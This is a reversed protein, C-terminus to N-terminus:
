LLHNMTNYYMDTLKKWIQIMIYRWRCKNTFIDVARHTWTLETHQSHNEINEKRGVKALFFPFSFFTLCYEEYPFLQYGNLIYIFRCYTRLSHRMHWLMLSLRDPSFTHKLLLMPLTGGRHTRMLEQIGKADMSSSTKFKKFMLKRLIQLDLEIVKLLLCQWLASKGRM